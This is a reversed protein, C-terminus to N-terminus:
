RTSWILATNLLVPEDLLLLGVQRAEAFWSAAGDLDKEALLIQGKQDM